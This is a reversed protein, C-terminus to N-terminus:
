ATEGGNREQLHIGWLGKKQTNGNTLYLEAKQLPCCCSSPSTHLRQHTLTHDPWTDLLNEVIQLFIPYVTAILEEFTEM